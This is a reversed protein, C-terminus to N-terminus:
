EDNIASDPAEVPPESPSQAEARVPDKFALPSILMAAAVLFLSAAALRESRKHWHDFDAQAVARQEAERSADYLQQRWHWVQPQVWWANALAVLAVVALLGLRALNGPGLLGGALRDRFVTCQAVVCLAVLLGCVGQVRNLSKLVNGVIGGALIEPAKEALAPRAYPGDTLYPQHTRVTRFTIAASIALMVLAGVWIGGFLYYVGQTMRYAASM